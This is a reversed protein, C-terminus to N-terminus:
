MHDVWNKTEMDRRGARLIAALQLDIDDSETSMTKNSLQRIHRQKPHMTLHGTTLYAHYLMNKESERLTSRTMKSTTFNSIFFFLQKHM